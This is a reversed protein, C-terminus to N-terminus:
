GLFAMVATIIFAWFSRGTKDVVLGTVVPAIWGALNGLFNQLGTWKGSAQPGALTQTIAVYQFRQNGLVGGSVVSMNTGCAPGLAMGAVISANAFGRKHEPFYRSLIM